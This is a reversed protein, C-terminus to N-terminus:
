DMEFLDHDIDELLPRIQNVTRQVYTATQTKKKHNLIISIRDDTFGRDALLTAVTRRLDHATFKVKSDESAREIVDTMTAPKNQLIPSPFVWESDSQLEKLIREMRDTIPMLHDRGNKTNKIVFYGEDLYVDNWKLKLPENFRMGTVLLLFIFSAQQKNIRGNWEEHWVNSLYDRLEQREKLSLYRDRPKIPTRAAKDKLILVPNGQPMLATGDALSDHCFSGLVASLTRMAKQAEAEGAINIMQKQRSERQVRKKISIFRKLVDERTIERIPRTMWDKFNRHLSKTYTDVTSPKLNRLWIYEDFAESLSKTAAKVANSHDRPNIGKALLALDHKAQKRADALSMVSTKGYTITVTKNTIHQKAKLVYKDGSPQHKIKLGTVKSDPTFVIVGRANQNGIPQRSTYNM